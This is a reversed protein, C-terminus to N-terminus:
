LLSRIKPWCRMLSLPLLVSRRQGAGLGARLSSKRLNTPKSCKPLYKKALKSSLVGGQDPCGNRGPKGTQDSLVIEIGENNLYASVDGFLWNAVAKDDGANKCAVDFYDAMAKTAVILGADYAPLGNETM